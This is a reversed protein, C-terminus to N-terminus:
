AQWRNLPTTFVMETRDGPLIVDSVEVTRDNIDICTKRLVLVAVGPRLGLEEAEELTPPRATLKEEIRDLEIGITFLQNQTGGPWPEASEDLLAPNAAVLDYPLFSHTLNLPEDEGQYRTRYIRELMRTGETVGFAKALGAPAQLERYEASFVLDTVTLGTDHETSGTTRREAEPSRARDKEWQHRENSRRVLTRPTFVFTGRGQIRDILGEAQLMDLASRVTQVSVKFRAALATEAALKEGPAPQGARIDKRLVDAIRENKNAM